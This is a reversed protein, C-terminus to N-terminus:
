HKAEKKLHRAKEEKYIAVLTLIFAAIYKQNANILVIFVLLTSSDDV